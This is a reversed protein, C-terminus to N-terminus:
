RRARKKKEKSSEIAKRRIEGWNNAGNVAVFENARTTDIDAFSINNGIDLPTESDNLFDFAIEKWEKAKPLINEEIQEESRISFSKGEDNFLLNPNINISSKPTNTNQKDVVEEEEDEEFQDNPILDAEM